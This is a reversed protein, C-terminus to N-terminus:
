AVPIFLSLSSSLLILFGNAIRSIKGGEEKGIHSQMTIRSFLSLSANLNIHHAHLKIEEDKEEKEKEREGEGLEFKCKPCLSRLAAVAPPSISHLIFM